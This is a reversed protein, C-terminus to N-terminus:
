YLDFRGQVNGGSITLKGEGMAKLFSQVIKGGALLADRCAQSGNPEGTSIFSHCPSCLDGVFTGEGVDGVHNECGKAICKKGTEHAIKIQHCKECVIIGGPGSIMGNSLAHNQADTEDEFFFQKGPVPFAGCSDCAIVYRTIQKLM